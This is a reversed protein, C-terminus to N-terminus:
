NEVETDATWINFIGNQYSPVEDTFCVVSMSGSDTELFVAFPCCFDIRRLKDNHSMM